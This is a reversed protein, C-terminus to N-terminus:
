AYFPKSRQLLELEIPEGNYNGRQGKFLDQFGLLMNQLKNRKAPTLHTQKQVIEEMNIQKYELPKIETVMLENATAHMNQSEVLWKANWAKATNEIKKKMWYRFPVMDVIINDWAFRSASYHIDFRIGKLLDCSLIFDCKDKSQKQYMHFSTTIYCKRTFQPLIFNEMQVTGDMQLIGTAM